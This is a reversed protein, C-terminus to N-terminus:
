DWLGKNVERELRTELENPLIPFFDLGTKEELEDISIAYTMIRKSSKENKMLFGIAKLEPEEIDLIAKYYYQPVSVKNKGIKKTKKEIVPGTVIYLKDNEEAWDRVQEELKKWIGRNFGPVQPSMNSMFFSDDLGQETWTFDAAPALHGRDYGSKKYDTPSASETSVMPDTRFNDKRKYAANALNKSTLSYAVWKAQENKEDYCLTFYSHEVIADEGTYAPWAFDFSTTFYLHNSSTYEPLNENTSTEELPEESETTNKPQEEETPTVKKATKKQEKKVTETKPIEEGTFEATEKVGYFVIGLMSLIIVIALAPNKKSSSSNNSKKPSAKKKAPKKKAM